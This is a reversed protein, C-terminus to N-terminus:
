RSARRATDDILSRSILQVIEVKGPYSGPEDSMGMAKGLKRLVTPAIGVKALILSREAVAVLAYVSPYTQPYVKGQHREYDKEFIAMDVAEIMPDFRVGYINSLSNADVTESKFDLTIMVLKDKLFSLLARQRGGKEGLSFELNRFVKENQKETVWRHLDYVVLRDIKDKDPKGLIRVADKPTSEGLVLGRWSDPKPGGADQAVATTMLALAGVLILIFRSFYKM